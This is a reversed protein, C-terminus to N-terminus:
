RNHASAHHRIVRYVVCMVPVVVARLGDAFLYAPIQDYQATERDSRDDRDHDSLEMEGCPLGHRQRQEHGAELGREDRGEEHMEDRLALEDVGHEDHRDEEEPHHDPARHMMVAIGLM